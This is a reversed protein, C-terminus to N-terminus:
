LLNVVTKHFELNGEKGCVGCAKQYKKKGKHQIRNVENKEEESLAEIQGYQWSFPFTIPEKEPPTAFDTDKPTDKNPHRLTTESHTIRHTNTITIIHKGRIISGRLSIGNNKLESKAKKLEVSLARPNTNLGLVRSLKSAQGKWMGSNEEILDVVASLIDHDQNHVESDQQKTEISM